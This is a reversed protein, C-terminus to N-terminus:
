PPLDAATRPYLKRNNFSFGLIGIVKSFSQGNTLNPGNAV